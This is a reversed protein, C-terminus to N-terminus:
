RRRMKGTSVPCCGSRRRIWDKTSAFLRNWIDRPRPGIKSGQFHRSEDIEQEDAVVQVALLDAEGHPATCALFCRVVTPTSSPCSM